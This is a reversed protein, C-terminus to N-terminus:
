EVMAARVQEAVDLVRVESEKEHAKVGDSIMTMCFPCGTGIVTAGTELAEKTRAVNVRQKIDEEMWMRAGGAGCCFSRDRSRGMESVPGTALQVLNRPAEYEQNYRGLYCPDHYTAKDKGAADPKLKIKGQKVLDDIFQTHHTVEYNGGFEPYENKLTHLCHPCGTVIKKVGYGNLVEVNSKALTQYLYENGVRRASDGTCMEESGLIGWRVGAKNLIDVMARSIKKAREDYSGACGVWFLVDVDKDEALTKVELGNAWDARTAASFAWPTYNNEMNKCALAAEAPMSGETLALYRRMELITPVHEIMVPCEQMCAGCTTCSWLEEPTIYDDGILTKGDDALKPAEGEGGKAAWLALIADARDQVRHRVDTVIKRPRLPKGTNNAPCVEDCRGCETCTFGDMLMKWTLDQIDKAGFQEANEDELNMPMLKGRYKLSSLFTNPVSLLVHFHKSYPLYNLFGFVILIHVWWSGAGVARLAGAPLGGIMGAVLGPLPRATAGGALAAEAGTFGFYSAMLLFILSLILTADLQAAKGVQLRKPRIVYRRWFAFLVSLMVLLAFVDQLGQLPRYLPGLFRLSLAPHIGQMMMETTGITLIVFGWFIFFHMLGPVVQRFLKSHGFAVTLVRTVREPLSDLRSEPKGIKLLKIFRLASYGFFGFAGAMVLIFIVNAIGFSATAHEGNM